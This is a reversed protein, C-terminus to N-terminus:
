KYVPMPLKEIGGAKIYAPTRHPLLDENKIFIHEMIVKYLELRNIFHLDADFPLTSDVFDYLVRAPGDYEVKNNRLARNLYALYVDSNDKLYDIQSTYLKYISDRKSSNKLAFADEQNALHNYKEYERKYHLLWNIEDDVSLNKGKHQACTPSHVLGFIAIIFILKKM